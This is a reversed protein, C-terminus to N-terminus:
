VETRDGDDGNGDGGGSEERAGVDEAGGNMERLWRRKSIRHKKARRKVSLEHRKRAAAAKIAGTFRRLARQFGDDAIRDSWVPVMGGTRNPAVVGTFPDKVLIEREGERCFYLYGAYDMIKSGKPACHLVVSYEQTIILDQRHACVAIPRHAGLKDDPVIKVRFGRVKESDAEGCVVCCEFKRTAIRKITEFLYEGNM